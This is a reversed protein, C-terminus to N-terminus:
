KGYVVGFPYGAYGTYATLPAAYTAHVAPVLPVAQKVEAAERNGIAGLGSVLGNGYDVGTLLGGNTQGAYVQGITYADAEPDASRKGLAHHGYGLYPYGSYLGAYTTAPVTYTVAPIKVAPVSVLGHGYHVGTVVGGNTLGANVQGITYADAEPDASRKGLAHHGYGLYPYAGYGYYQGAYTTAPVVAGVTPVAHRVAAVARNGIAGLGSVLGHGYDVGTVVGGNTLGGNVQAITYADAESDASRKGLAHHGYGLYPFGYHGVYGAYTTAPLAYTVAPIKVGTETIVGPNHANGTAIANAQPLGLAVQAPTYADAEADASRKGVHSIYPFGAYTVAPFNTIVGPNHLRNEAAANALPAGALVQGVTYPDAEAVAAAVLCALIFTKM